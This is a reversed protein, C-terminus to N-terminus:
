RRDPGGEAAHWADDESAEAEAVRALARNERPKQAM